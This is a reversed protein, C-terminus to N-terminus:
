FFSEYTHKFKEDLSFINKRTTIKYGLKELIRFYNTQYNVPPIGNTVSSYKESCFIFNDYFLDLLIRGPRSTKYSMNLIKKYKVFCITSKINSRIFYSILYSISKGDFQLLYKYKTFFFVKFNKFLSKLINGKDLIVYKDVYSYMRAVEFNYESCVLTIHSEKINDKIIKLCPSFNILDGVKDSKFIIIKDM